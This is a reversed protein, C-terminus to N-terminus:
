APTLTVDSVRNGWRQLRTKATEAHHPDTETTAIFVRQGVFEAQWPRFGAAIALKCGQLIFTENECPEILRFVVIFQREKKM